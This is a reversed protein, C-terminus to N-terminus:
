VLLVLESIAISAVAQAMTAAYMILVALALIAASRAYGFGNLVRIAKVHLLLTWGIPLLGVAYQISGGAFTFWSTRTLLGDHFLPEPVALDYLGWAARVTVIGLLVPVMCYALTPFARRLSSNGGWRRGIWFIGLIMLLVDVSRTVLAYLVGDWAIESMRPGFVSMPFLAGLVVLAALIVASPALYTAPDDYIRRFTATPRVVVGYLAMAAGQVGRGNSGATM